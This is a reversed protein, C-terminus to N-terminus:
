MARLFGRLEGSMWGGFGKHPSLSSSFAQLRSGANRSVSESRGAAVPAASGHSIDFPTISLPERAKAETGQM